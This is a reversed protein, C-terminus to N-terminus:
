GLDRLSSVVKMRFALWGPWMAAVVGIILAIAMGKMCTSNRVELSQILPVSWNKLATYRFALFPGATGILGGLGCLLLSETQILAFAFGGGFGLSKLTAMENIRDRFNMSMTNAAAMVAVFVTLASLLSLNTPLDFQQTIFENMFTKEDQTKTEDPSGAFLRDIEQRYFDLDAQTACKVFFFTVQGPFAGEQKAIEEFYDRRCWNTVIDTANQLTSVVNFEIERYPPISPLMVIRDGVKWGMDGATGRGIMIAQKDKYWAEIEEPTLNHEPFAAVFADHDVALTSLPTPDNKRQGGIYRLGCAATIRTKSPDLSEIKARYGEPLPNVISTKQTVALRLQRTSNDLFRGIGDVVSMSMVYIVIPLAVAFCTLVTRLPNRALNRYLYIIRLNM